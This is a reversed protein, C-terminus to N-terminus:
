SKNEPPWTQEESDSRKEFLALMRVKCRQGVSLKKYYKAYEPRLIERYKGESYRHIFNRKLRRERIIESYAHNTYEDLLVWMQELTKEHIEHEKGHKVRLTWSHESAVRYASMCEPLFLMGGRLAGHIQITYDYPFVVRFEPLNHNIEARCFISNTGVFGGGGWIVEEPSFVTEKDSPAIISLEKKTDREVRLVAHTCIDLEPHTELADYQKQLKLPDTWYDDGECFAMYRGKARPFQFDISSDKGQSEQNVEHLLPKILDPHKEAYERIIEATRDTSADDNVLIEFRFDTKQMLFSDLAEAIYKEHNYTNCIISVAIDNEM